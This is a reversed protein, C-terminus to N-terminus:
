SPQQNKSSEVGGASNCILIATKFRKRDVHSTTAKDIVIPLTDVVLRANPSRQGCSQVPTPAVQSQTAAARVNAAQQRKYHVYQRYRRYYAQIITAAQMERDRYCRVLTSQQPQHLNMYKFHQQQGLAAVQRSCSARQELLDMADMQTMGVTATTSPNGSLQFDPLVLLERDTVVHEPEISLESAQRKRGRYTRYAKQIIKAAEYLEHQEHDNLTLSAFSEETKASAQFYECFDASTPTGTSQRGCSCTPSQDEQNAPERNAAACASSPSHLSSTSPSLSSVISGLGSSSTETMNQSENPLCHTLMQQHNSALMPRQPVHPVFVSSQQQQQNSLFAGSSGISHREHGFPVPQNTSFFDTVVSLPQQSDTSFTSKHWYPDGDIVGFDMAAFSSGSCAMPESDRSLSRSGNLYRQSAKISRNRQIHSHNHLQKQYHDLSEIDLSNALRFDSSRNVYTNNKKHMASIINEALTLVRFNDGGTKNPGMELPSVQPQRQNAFVTSSSASHNSSTSNRHQTNSGNNITGNNGTISQNCNNDISSDQGSQNSNSKQYSISAAQKSVTQICSPRMEFLVQESVIRNMFLVKLTIFGQEHGPAYCRLVNDQILTAPVLLDDFIAYFPSSSGDKELSALQQQQQQQQQDIVNFTSESLLSSWNGVILVKAGGTTNSWNPVYDLIPLVGSMSSNTTRRSYEILPQNATLQQSTQLSNSNYSTPSGHQFHTNNSTAANNVLIDSSNTNPIASSLSSGLKVQQQHHSVNLNVQHNITQSSFTPENPPAPSVLLLNHCENKAKRHNPDEYPILPSNSSRQKLQDQDHRHYTISLDKSDLSVAKPLLTSLVSNSLTRQESRQRLQRNKPAKMYSQSSTSEPNHNINEGIFVSETQAPMQGVRLSSTSPTPSCSTSHAVPNTSSSRHMNGGPSSDALFEDFTNTVMINNIQHSNPAVGCTELYHHRPSPHESHMQISSQMANGTSNCRPMPILPSIRNMTETDSTSSQLDLQVRGQNGYDVKFNFIDLPNNDVLSNPHDVRDGDSSIGMILDRLDDANTLSDVVSADLDDGEGDVDDTSTQLNFETLLLNDDVVEHGHVRPRRDNVQCQEGDEHSGFLDCEAALDMSCASQRTNIDTDIRSSHMFQKTSVMGQGDQCLERQRQHEDNEHDEQKPSEVVEMPQIPMSSISMSRHDQHHHRHHETDFHNPELPLAYTEIDDVIKNYIQTVPSCSGPEIQNSSQGMSSPRNISCDVNNASLIGGRSDDSKNYDFCDANLQNSANLNSGHASFTINKSTEMCNLHQAQDSANAQLNTTGNNSNMVQSISVSNNNEDSRMKEDDEASRERVSQELKLQHVSDHERTQSPSKEFADCLPGQEVLLVDVQENLSDSNTPMQPSMESRIDSTQSLQNQIVSQQQPQVIAASSPFSINLMHQIQSVGGFVSGIEEIIEENTWSRRTDAELLSPNFTIMMKSQDDPPQNLYHVLVIDPNQLLWYCRRHFTPLIASHVYCGYICEIGQVKLKMHDERTTRGNKRKKWCYGDQRYRVKERLYLLVAGSKPRIQLENTQWEPHSKFNTLISSVEENTYWRSRTGSFVVTDKTSDSPSTNNNDDGNNLYQDGSNNMAQYQQVHQKHQEQLSPEAPCGTAPQLSEHDNAYIQSSSTPGLNEGGEQNGPTNTALVQRSQIAVLKNFLEAKSNRLQSKFNSKTDGSAENYSEALDVQESNIAVSAANAQM